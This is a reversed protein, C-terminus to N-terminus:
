FIKYFQRNPWDYERRVVNWHKVNTFFGVVRTVEDTFPKGCTPCLETGVWVHSNECVHLKYNIAFYVVGQKAAYEIIDIMKQPDTIQADVNIHCVAGGSFLKDFKGQLDIRELM